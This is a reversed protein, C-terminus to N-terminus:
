MKPPPSSQWKSLVAGTRRVQGLQRIWCSALRAAKTGVSVQALVKGGYIEFGRGDVRFVGRLEVPVAFHQGLVWPDIGSDLVAETQEVAKGATM